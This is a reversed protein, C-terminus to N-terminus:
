GMGVPTYKREKKRGVAQTCLLQRRMLAVVGALAGEPIHHDQVFAVLELHAATHSPSNSSSPGPSATLPLSPTHHDQVLVVLELHAAMEGMAM